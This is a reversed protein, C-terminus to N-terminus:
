RCTIGATTAVVSRGIAITTQASCRGEAHTETSPRESPPIRLPSSTSPSDPSTLSSAITSPSTTNCRFRPTM